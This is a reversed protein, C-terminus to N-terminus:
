EKSSLPIIKLEKCDGTYIRHFQNALKLLYNRADVFEEDNCDIRCFHYAIQSVIHKDAKFDFGGCWLPLSSFDIDTGKLNAGRLDANELNAYKLTSDRLDADRLDARRLNARRFNSGELNSWRLDAGKLDADVLNAEYFNVYKLNANQLNAEELDTGKLDAGSFNARRLNADHLDAYQLNANSFDLGCLGMFSLDTKEGEPDGKLWLGHRRIMENLDEQTINNM